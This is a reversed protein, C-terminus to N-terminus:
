SVRETAVSVTELSSANSTTETSVTEADGWLVAGEAIAGAAAQGAETICVTLHRYKPMGTGAPILNGMIVNEKFGKMNDKKGVAAAETLIRTTEQFSAASIFSDTQLSAKTIGLLIPEGEAPKGGMEVVNRNAEAFHHRDVQEDHFFETDGPDTVRVKGFMRALIVELHKDNITVGQLRYVKQIESLLYEQAAAEGLVALMEHPDALGDTLFQGKKVFDGDQVIIQKDQAVFHVDAAETEANTVVLRKKGRMTGALSVVGDIRAMEATKKPCRAEFLETIRPLGGVIDQTKDSVRAMKAILAGPSVTDGEEVTLQAGSPIAYTALLTGRKDVIEVSPNLDDQHEMIMRVDSGEGARCVTVGTIIDKFRVEGSKESLIPIKTADWVALSDGKEVNSGDAVAIVSGPHIRYSELERHDESFIRLMGTKNLAVITGESTAVTRLDDYKVVGAHQARFEPTKFAQGAVGGSHFTRLTLQTGPEGISQAALIGVSTGEAVLAHTATDEGYAKAPIVNKVMHTLPSLIKVADIGLAEVRKAQAETILDGRHIVCENPDSPNVVDECACRGVIRESLSVIEDDGDCIAQKWVGKSNDLPEDTGGAVCDMAVDCLKRTLYGADATKLATDAMGKRGGHTSTFYELVKLGDRFSSLIPQEIIEGSPKAMLGRMGVLQRVQQKNGRAGSDMMMWIPNVEGDKGRQALTEFSANAVEETANTWISIVKNYRESDTIIGRRFQSEVEKIKKESKEIVAAKEDSVVIDGMGVSVGSQTVRSFGLSKLADLLEAFSQSSILHYAANIVDSLKDNGVTENVFGVGKPFVANFLIRGITTRLYKDSPVGFKTEKQYDPNPMDVWDDSSLIGESEMREAELAGSVIPVQRTKEPKPKTESTLAYVGLVIDQSPVTIPKGSSPSFLNHTSLMLLRAEMIAEASLPVHVAMQDGDFDANFAACVLPHLRIAGGEILVPEFAQISLRHLTPARNLLVPHGKIVEQLVDWVEPTKNEIMKRAARVTYAFGLERLRHIIFPEFLVLAMQKPLGCQYIKLEPGVVIVTRGSYDVRKGLLNQRFRGQKGKLSESLSKLPRGNSGAVARTGRCGNDFLADVAEQLMRKENHIIIDPTKLQLLSRLRNNRNIVRRYLDNLDSTAFRGGDLPVLPRLDPPTVPLVQLVMWEPRIKNRIMGNILKLRKSLKQKLSKSTDTAMRMQMEEAEDELSMDCLLERIAEAGMKATFADEGFEAQASQYENETLLQKKELPTSGPDLVLYSEYYIVRELDRVTMDLLLSFCSPVSKLFWVHAVPVALEIHGMWERRVRSVTVEVGCRDCVVGRYKIRKYKGCACEYDTVPGFIRQCFLGDPEPKWTRYNITEPTKVEGKSWQRITEPSAISIRVSDFTPDSEFGLLGHIDERFM